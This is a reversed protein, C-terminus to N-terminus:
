ASTAKQAPLDFEVFARGAHTITMAKTDSTDIWGYKSATRRLAIDPSGPPKWQCASYGALVQGINATSMGLVETMYYVIVANKQENNSSQKEDAFERLSQKDAPRFNIQKDIPWSKKSGAKRPRQQRPAASGAKGESEPAPSPSGGDDPGADPGSPVVTLEAPATPAAEHRGLGRASILADFMARRLEPDDFQKVAEAIAPAAALLRDFETGGPTPSNEM